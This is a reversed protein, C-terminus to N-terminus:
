VIQYLTGSLKDNNSFVSELSLVELLTKILNKLM